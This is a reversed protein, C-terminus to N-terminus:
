RALLGHRAAYHALEANGAVRLKQLIRARYVSAAKPAVGLRQAADALAIGRAIDRLLAQELPTLSEHPARTGTSTALRLRAAERVAQVLCATDAAKSVYAQAGAELALQSYQEEPHMSVVVVAPPAPLARLRKVVDLGPVGPLQLDLVVVDPGAALQPELEDWCAAEGAVPLGEEELAERMGRRVLAHDDVLVLRTM